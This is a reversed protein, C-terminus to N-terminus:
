NCSCFCRHQLHQRLVAVEALGCGSFGSTARNTQQARSRNTAGVSRDRSSNRSLVYQSYSRYLELAVVSISGARMLRRHSGISFSRVSPVPGAAWSSSMHPAMALVSRTKPWKAGGDGRNFLRSDANHRRSLDVASNLAFRRQRRVRLSLQAIGLADIL